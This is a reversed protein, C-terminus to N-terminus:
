SLNNSCGAAHVPCFGRHKGERRIHLMLPLLFDLRLRLFAASISSAVLSSSTVQQKCSLQAVSQAVGAHRINGRTSLHKVRKARLGWRAEAGTTDASSTCDPQRCRGRGETRDYRDLTPVRRRHNRHERPGVARKGRNWTDLVRGALPPPRLFRADLPVDYPLDM